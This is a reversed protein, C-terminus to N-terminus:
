SKRSVYLVEKKQIRFRDVKDAGIEEQLKFSEVTFGASTLKDPYDNGFLRVHDKQWYHKERDEPSVISKDEYTEDRTTDLPVQFIGWGGPKMVRHLETMCQHADEVHELVHNCFIVDYTNDELPIQHLDFHLDAIPSELDGTTYDLNEQAKFQKHFCQEPAIHLVKLPASFFDTHNNLYYWMLRHRELSLCYPCLVNEREAVKSGYSLFKRFSRECVTCEVANGKYLLPAIRKFGYSLRILLPRPLTNRIWRYV